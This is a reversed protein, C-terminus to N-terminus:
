LMSPPGSLVRISGLIAFHSRRFARAAPHVALKIPVRVKAMTVPTVDPTAPNDLRRLEVLCVTTSPEFHGQWYCM